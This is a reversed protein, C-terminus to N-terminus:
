RVFWQQGDRNIKFGTKALKKNFHINFYLSTESHYENSNINQLKSHMNFM